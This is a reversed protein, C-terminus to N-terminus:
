SCSPTACRIMTGFLLVASSSIRRRVTARPAQKEIKREMRFTNPKLAALILIVAIVAALGATIKKIM